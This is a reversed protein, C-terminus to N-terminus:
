NGSTWSSTDTMSKWHADPNSQDYIGAGGNSGILEIAANRAQQALIAEQQAKVSIFNAVSSLIAQSDALEQNLLGLQQAQIQLQATMSKTHSSDAVLAASTNLNTATDKALVNTNMVIQNSAQMAHDLMRLRSNFTQYNPDALMAKINPLDYSQFDAMTQDFMGIAATEQGYAAVFGDWGGARLDQIAQVQYQLAQDADQLQKVATQIQQITQQAQQVWRYQQQLQMQQTQLSDTVISVPMVQGYLVSSLLAFTATLLSKM